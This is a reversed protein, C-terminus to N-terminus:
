SQRVICQDEDVVSTDKLRLWRDRNELDMNRSLATDIQETYDTTQLPLERTCQLALLCDCIKSYLNQLLSLCYENQCKLLEM